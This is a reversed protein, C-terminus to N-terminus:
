LTRVPVSPVLLCVCGVEKVDHVTISAAAKRIVFVNPAEESDGDVPIHYAVYTFADQCRYFM